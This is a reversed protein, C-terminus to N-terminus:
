IGSDLFLALGVLNIGANAAAAACAADAAFHGINWCLRSVPPALKDPQDVDVTTYTIRAVETGDDNVMEVTATVNGDTAVGVKPQAVAASLVGTAAVASLATVITAFHM